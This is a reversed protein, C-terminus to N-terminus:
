DIQRRFVRIATLRPQGAAEFILEEHFTAPSVRRRITTLLGRKFRDETVLASRDALWRSRRQTQGGDVTRGVAWRNTIPLVITDDTFRTLVRVALGAPKTEIVQRVSLSGMVKRTVWGYGLGKLIADLSQSAKSDLKWKGDFPKSAAAAQSQESAMMLLGCLAMAPLRSM